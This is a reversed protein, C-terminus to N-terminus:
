TIKITTKKIFNDKIKGFIQILILKETETLNSFFETEFEVFKEEVLKQHEIGKQTLHVRMLRGDNVCKNCDVFGGEILSKVMKNITPASLKLHTALDIQSQRDNKWLSILIFVQGGHLNIQNM